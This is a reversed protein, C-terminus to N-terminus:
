ALILFLVPFMITRRDAVDEFRAPSNGLFAILGAQVVLISDALDHSATEDTGFDQDRGGGM